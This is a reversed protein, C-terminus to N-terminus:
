TLFPIQEISAKALFDAVKNCERYCHMFFIDKFTECLKLAEEM